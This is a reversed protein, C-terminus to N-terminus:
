PNRVCTYTLQLHQKGAAAAADPSFVASDDEEEPDTHSPDAEPTGFVRDTAFGEGCYGYLIDAPGNFFYSAYAQWPQLQKGASTVRLVIPRNQKNNFIMDVRYERIGSDPKANSYDPFAPKRECKGIPEITQLNQYIETHIYGTSRYQLEGGSRVRCGRFIEIHTSDQILNVEISTQGCQPKGLRLEFWQRRDNHFLLHGELERVESASDPRTPTSSVPCTQGAASLAASALLVCALLSRPM